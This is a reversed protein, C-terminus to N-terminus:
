LFVRERREQLLGAVGDVFHIEGRGEFRELFIERLARVLGVRVELQSIGVRAQLAGFVRLAFKRPGDGQVRLHRGRM